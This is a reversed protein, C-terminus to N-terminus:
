EVDKAIMAQMMNLTEINITAAPRSAEDRAQDTKLATSVYAHKDKLSLDKDKLAKDMVRIAQPVTIRSIHEQNHQLNLHILEHLQHVEQVFM